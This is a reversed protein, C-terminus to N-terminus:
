ITINCFYAHKHKHTYLTLKNVFFIIKYFLITVIFYFDTIFILKNKLKIKSIYNYLTHIDLKLANNSQLHPQIDDTLREHMTSTMKSNILYYIQVIM